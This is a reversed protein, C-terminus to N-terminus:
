GNSLIEKPEFEDVYNHVCHACPEDYPKTDTYKCVDCADDDDVTHLVKVQSDEMEHWDVEWICCMINWVFARDHPEDKDGRRWKLYHRIASDIYYKPEIGKQWNNEGYKKAGEEFHKGAELIMTERCGNYAKDSFESLSMFLSVTSGDEMFKRIGMIVVDTDLIEEVVGLPMLDMRGKGERMDRVAGTAFETRNGSDLIRPTINKIAEMAEMVSELNNTGKTNNTLAM